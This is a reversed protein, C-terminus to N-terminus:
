ARREGRRDDPELEEVAGGRGLGDHPAEGRWEEHGDLDDTPGDTLM